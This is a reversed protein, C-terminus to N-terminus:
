ATEKGRPNEPQTLGQAKEMAERVDDVQARLYRLTTKIDVHGLMKQVVKINGGAGALARAAATHRLDHFRAESLGAAELAADWDKRWGDRTFPYRTGKQQSIVVVEGTPKTITQRRNRACIFTFVHTPHRGREVSLLAAIAPTIPVVHTRGGPKRSKMSITILMREWDVQRWTLTRCNSVRIGTLIAFSVLPLFDPRLSDLLEVEQKRSVIVEREDPEDLFLKSWAIKAVEIDHVDRARNIVSRLTTLERNISSPSLFRKRRYAITGRRRAVFDAIKSTTLMSLPTRKDIIALVTKANRAIDTASARHEAVQLLYSGFAEDITMQKAVDRTIGKLADARVQAARIEAQSEDDTELSRRFRRGHVTFNCYWCPSDPRRKILSRPRKGM